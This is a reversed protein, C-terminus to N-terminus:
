MALLALLRVHSSANFAFCHTVPNTTVHRTKAALSLGAIPFAIGLCDSQRNPPLPQPVNGDRDMCDKFYAQRDGSMPVSGPRRYPFAIYSYRFCKKATGASPAARSDVPAFSILAFVIAPPWLQTPLKTTNSIAFLLIWRLCIRELKHKAM